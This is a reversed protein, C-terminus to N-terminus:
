SSFLEWKIKVFYPENSLLSLKSPPAQIINEFKPKSRAYFLRSHANNRYDSVYEGMWAWKVGSEHRFKFIYVSFSRAMMTKKLILWIQYFDMSLKKWSLSFVSVLILIKSDPHPLAGLERNWTSVQLGIDWFMFGMWWKCFRSFLEWHIKVM